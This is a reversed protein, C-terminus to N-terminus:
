FTMQGFILKEMLLSCIQIQKAHMLCALGRSFIDTGYLLSSCFKLLFHKKLITFSNDGNECMVILFLIINGKERKKIVTIKLAVFNIDGFSGSLHVNSSLLFDSFKMKSYSLLIQGMPLLEFDCDNSGKKHVTVSQAPKLKYYLCVFYQNGFTLTGWLTLVLVDIQFLASAM